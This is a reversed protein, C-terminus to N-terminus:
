CNHASKPPPVDPRDSQSLMSENLITVPQVLGPISVAIERSLLMPAAGAPTGCCSSSCPCSQQSCGNQPVPKQALVPKQAQGLRQGGHSLYRHTSIAEPKACCSKKTPAPVLIQCCCSGSTLCCASASQSIGCCGQALPLGGAPVGATLVCLNLILVLLTKM